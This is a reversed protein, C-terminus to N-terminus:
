PSGPRTPAPSRRAASGTVQGLTILLVPLEIWTHLAAAVGYASRAGSFDAAYFALSGLGAAGVIIAFVNWSPWRALTLRKGGPRGLMRPLLVIVAFYHMAQATVAAAFLSSVQDIDSGAPLFATLPQAGSEFLGPTDAPTVGFAAHLASAPLGTAILAPLVLFPLSLWALRRARERPASREAVFALPTLNHLWATVLLTTVPAFVIGALLAASIVGALLRLRPMAAIAVAALAAGAGLEGGLAIEAPLWHAWRGVRAAVVLGLLALIILLASRPIRGAFREDVYRMEFLVHPLGFLAVLLVYAPLPAAVIALSAIAVAGFGLAIRFHLTTTGSPPALATM